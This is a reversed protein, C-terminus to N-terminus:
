KVEMNIKIKVSDPTSGFEKVAQDILQAIIPDDTNVTYQEYILHKSTMRKEENKVIISIESPM